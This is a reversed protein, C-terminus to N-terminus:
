VPHKLEFYLNWNRFVECNSDHVIVVQASVVHNTLSHNVQFLPQQRSEMCFTAQLPSVKRVYQQFDYVNKLTSNDGKLTFYLVIKFRIKRFRM